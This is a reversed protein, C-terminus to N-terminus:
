LRMKINEAHVWTMTCAVSWLMVYLNYAYMKCAYIILIQM